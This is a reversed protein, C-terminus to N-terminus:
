KSVLQKMPELPKGGPRFRSDIAGAGSFDFGPAQSEGVGFGQAFYEIRGVLNAPDATGGSAGNRLRAPRSLRGAPHVASGGGSVFGGHLRGRQRQAFAHMARYRNQCLFIACRLFGDPVGDAAFKVEM